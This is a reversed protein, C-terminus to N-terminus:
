APLVLVYEDTDAARAHAWNTERGTVQFGCRDLVRLSGANDAAARAHLPRETVEALLAALAATALGRGWHARVIGYSVTREEAPGHVATNGVVEGDTDVVTRLVISADARLRAWHADFGARDYPDKTTFAAMRNAEPDSSMGWFVDLDGDEVDRLRIGTGASTDM